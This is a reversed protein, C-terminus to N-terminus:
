IFGGGGGCYGLVVWGACVGGLRVFVRVFICVNLYVSHSTAMLFSPEDHTLPSKDTDDLPAQSSSCHSTVACALGAPQHFMNVHTHNQAHPQSPPSPPICNPQHSSGNPRAADSFWSFSHSGVNPTVGNM